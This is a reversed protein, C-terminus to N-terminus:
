PLKNKKTMSIRERIKELEFGFENDSNKLAIINGIKFKNIEELYFVISNLMSDVSDIKENSNDIFRSFIDSETIESTLTVVGTEFEKGKKIGMLRVSESNNNVFLFDEFDKHPANLDIPCLIKRTRIKPTYTKRKKFM